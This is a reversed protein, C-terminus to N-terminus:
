KYKWKPLCSPAHTRLLLYSCWPCIIQGHCILMDPWPMYAYRAMAYIYLHANREKTNDWLSNRGIAEAVLPGERAASRSVMRTVSGPHVSSSSAARLTLTSADSSCRYPANTSCTVCTQVATCATVPHPSPTRCGQPQVDGSGKLGKKITLYTNM